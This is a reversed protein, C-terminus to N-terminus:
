QLLFCYLYKLGLIAVIIPVIVNFFLEVINQFTLHKKDFSNELEKIQKKIDDAEDGLSGTREDGRQEQNLKDQREYEKGIEDYTMGLTEGTFKRAKNNILNNKFYQMLDLSLIVLFNILLFITIVILFWGFIKENNNFSLGILSLKTPM